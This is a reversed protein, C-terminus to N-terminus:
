FGLDIAFWFSRSPPFPTVEINRAIAQNGFNSVEPDLGDYDTITFLNRASVSLRAFRAGRWLAHVTSAPLDYSLTLERLKLFTASEVYNKAVRGFGAM